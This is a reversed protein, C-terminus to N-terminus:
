RRPEWGFHRRTLLLGGVIWAGLVLLPFLVGGVGPDGAAPSLGLRLLSIVPTLPLLQAVQALPVPLQEVPLMVGSLALSAVLVPSTVLEALHVTRTVAASALALLVFVVTGGLVAVVALLPAAPRPLGFVTAAAIAGLLVQAWAIAVAPAVVGTLVEADGLEGTRLRKLVLEERRSVVATVLNYYVVLILTAGVLSTVVSAGLGGAEVLEPPVSARMLAVLTVPMVAVMFLAMPNRRLLVGEALALAIVRRVSAAVRASGAHAAPRSVALTM